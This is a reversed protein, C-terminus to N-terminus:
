QISPSFMRQAFTEISTLEVGYTSVQEQMDIFTEFTEFGRMMDDVGPPLLPIPDEFSLYNIPLKKGLAKGVFGVVETWSYSAPGGILIKQNMAKPNDVAAAGFSAVDDIAVYSHRNEGKGFLSVPMGAKLPMGVVMPIWIEMFIGPALITYPLGSEILYQECLGKIKPLPVSSNPDSIIASTYIFHKVGANRAADILNKTGKLDVNELDFDRLTSVATTLVTDVGEVAKELSAYDKLDGSVPKAGAEILSQASTAMGQLALEECPSDPRVLIRVDKGQDLLKRVIRGGLLGTAGVVLIM